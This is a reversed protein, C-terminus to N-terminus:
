QKEISVFKDNAIIINDILKIDLNKCSVDLKGMFEIDQSSPNLSGSPHNHVCIIGSAYKQLAKHLIERIIPYAKNISGRAMDVIDIIKNDNDLFVVKFIETKLDRMEPILMNAVDEACTVKKKTAVVEDERFRKGIELAAQIKAIKAKGLGKFEVWDRSDCHSMNRFTGFKKLIKRSLEIASEGKVGTSILIAILESNSLASAGKKLLKERPRDDIPWNKISNSNKKNKELITKKITEKKKVRGDM